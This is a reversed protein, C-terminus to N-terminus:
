SFRRNLLDLNEANKILIIKVSRDHIYRTFRCLSLNRLYSLLFHFHSGLFLSSLGVVLSRTRAAGLLGVTRRRFRRSRRASARALFAVLMIAMVDTRQPSCLFGSICSTIMDPKRTKQRKATKRVGRKDSQAYRLTETRVAHYILFILDKPERRLIVFCAHWSSLHDWAARMRSTRLNIVAAFRHPQAQCHAARRLIILDDHFVGFVDLKFLYFAELYVVEFQFATKVNRPAVSAAVDGNCCEIHAQGCRVGLRHDVNRREMGYFVEGSRKQPVAFMLIFYNVESRHATARAAIKYHEALELGLVHKFGDDSQAIMDEGEVSIYGACRRGLASVVALLIKVLSLVIDRAIAFLKYLMLTEYIGLSLILDLDKPKRESHCFLCAMTCHRRRWQLPPSATVHTVDEGGGNPPPTPSASPPPKLTLCSYFLLAFTVM